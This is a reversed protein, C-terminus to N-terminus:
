KLGGLEKVLRAIIKKWQKLPKLNDYLEDFVVDGTVGGQGKKTNQALFCAVIYSPTELCVGYDADDDEYADRINDQAYYCIRALTDVFKEEKLTKM